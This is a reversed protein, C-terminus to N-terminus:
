NIQFIYEIHIPPEWEHDQIANLPSRFHQIFSQIEQTPLENNSVLEYTQEVLAQDVYEISLFSFYQLNYKDEAFRKWIVKTRQLLEKAIHLQQDLPISALYKELSM